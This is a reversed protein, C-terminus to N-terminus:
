LPPRRACGRKASCVGGRESCAALALPRCLNLLKHLAIVVDARGPGAVRLLVRGEARHAATRQRRQGTQRPRASVQRPRQRLGAAVASGALHRQRHGRVQRGGHVDVVLERVEVLVVPPSHM